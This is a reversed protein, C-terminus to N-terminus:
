HVQITYIKFQVVIYEKKDNKSTLDTVNTVWVKNPETVKFDQNLKNLENEQM